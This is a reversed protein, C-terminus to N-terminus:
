KLRDIDTTSSNRETIWVTKRTGFPKRYKNGIEHVDTKRYDCPTKEFFADLKKIRDRIEHTISASYKTGQGLMEMDALFKERDEIESIVTIYM